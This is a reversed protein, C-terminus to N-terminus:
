LILDFSTNVKILFDRLESMNQAILDVKKTLKWMTSKKFNLGLLDNVEKTTLSTKSKLLYLYVSLKLDNQLTSNYVYEYLAKVRSKDDLRILGSLENDCNEPIFERIREIFDASGIISNGHIYDEPHWASAEDRAMHNQMKQIAVESNKDFRKLILDKHLFKPAFDYGLYYRYSSHKWSCPDQVIVGLPNRHIYRQLNLANEESCVLFASYRKEFVKGRFNYKKKFYCAYRTLLRHMAYNLNANPTETFLHIHNNMLCFAHVILLHSDFVVSLDDKFHEFDKEDRFLWMKNYGRTVVHHFAGKYEIRAQRAM